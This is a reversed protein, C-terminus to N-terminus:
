VSLVRLTSEADGHRSSATRRASRTLTQTPGPHPKHTYGKMSHHYLHIELKAFRSQAVLWSNSCRSREKILLNQSRRIKVSLLSYSAPERLNKEPSRLDPMGSKDLESMKYPFAFTSDYYLM